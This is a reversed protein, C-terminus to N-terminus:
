GAHSKVAAGRNRSVSAYDILHCFRRAEGAVTETGGDVAGASGHTAARDVEIQQPAEGPARTALIAEKDTTRM